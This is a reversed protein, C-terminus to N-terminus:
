QMVVNDGLRILSVSAASEPVVTYSALHEDWDLQGAALCEANVIHGSREVPQDYGADNVVRNSSLGLTIIAIVLSLSPQSGVTM